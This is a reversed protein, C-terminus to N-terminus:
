YLPRSELLRERSKIAFGNLRQVTQDKGLPLRKSIISDPFLTTTAMLPPTSEYTAAARSL